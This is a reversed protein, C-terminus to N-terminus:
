VDNYFNKYEVFTFSDSNSVSIENLIPCFHSIVESITISKKIPQIVETM